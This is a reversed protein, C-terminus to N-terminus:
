VKKTELFSYNSDIFLAGILAEVTDSYYTEAGERM